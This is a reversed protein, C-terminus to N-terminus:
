SVVPLVEVDYGGAVRAALAECSWEFEFRGAPRIGNLAPVTGCFMVMGEPTAGGQAQWLALLESPPRLAAGRGDQYPARLPGDIAFSRLLLSDYHPAVEDWAWASAALPKGCLQKSLAVSYAEAKRDTHDSGATLWWRGEWRLLVPEAEGSTEAGVVQLAPSQTLQAASVRYFLPVTSPRPVGIAALEEIHHEIAARDRGTWGAVVALVPEFRARHRGSTSCLEFELMSM